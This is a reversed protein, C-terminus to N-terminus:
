GRGEEAGKRGYDEELFGDGKLENAGPQEHGDADPQMEGLIMFVFMKVFQHFVRMGVRMVLVVLVFVEGTIRGALRM